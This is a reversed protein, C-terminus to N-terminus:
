KKCALEVIDENADFKCEYLLDGEVKQINDLQVVIRERCASCPSVEYGWLLAEYLGPERNADAVDVLNWVLEHADKKNFHLSLLKDAILKSDEIEFNKIFLRLITTDTGSIEGALLKNIALDHIRKNEVKALAKLTARKLRKDTGAAWLFLNDNLKPIQGRDFVWLLKIRAVRRKEKVLRQYVIKLEQQTADRGCAFYPGPNGLRKDEAYALIKNLPYEERCREKYSKAETPEAAANQNFTGKNNLFEWWATLAPDETRKKIIENKQRQSFMDEWLYSAIDSISDDPNNLLRRGYITGLELGGRVGSIELWERAGLGPDNKSNLAQELARNKLAVRASNDGALAMEKTIEFLQTADNREMETQLSKLIDRSFEAYYETNKFMNFLWRARSPENLASWRNNHLCGKLVIDSVGKLGFHSTHLFARGLGKRFASAFERRNLKKIM